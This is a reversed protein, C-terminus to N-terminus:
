ASFVGSLTILSARIRRTQYRSWESEPKEALDLAFQTDDQGPDRTPRLFHEEFDPLPVTRQCCM